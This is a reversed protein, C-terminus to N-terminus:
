RTEQWIAAGALAAAIAAAGIWWWPFPRDDPEVEAGIRAATASATLKERLDPAMPVAAAPPARLTVERLLAESGLKTMLARIRVESDAGLPRDLGFEMRDPAIGELPRLQFERGQEQITVIVRGVAHAPDELGVRVRDSMRSGFLRFPTQGEAWARAAAAEASVTVPPASTGGLSAWARLCWEVRARDGTVKAARAADLLLPEAPPLEGVVLAL